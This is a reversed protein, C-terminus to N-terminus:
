LGMTSYHLYRNMAAQGHGADVGLMHTTLASNFGILGNDSSSASVRYKGFTPRSAAPPMVTKLHTATRVM